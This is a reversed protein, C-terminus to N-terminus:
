DFGLGQERLSVYRQHGIILHDLVEIDLLGGAQVAQRTVDIDDSSPSPDGSPHNHALIIAASNRAIAERFLEGARVMSANLNGIYVTHVHEVRNRTDLLLVRLHEQHLYSMDGMLLRAADAAERIQPRDEPSLSSLRRGLEFAAKLQVAKAQGMGHTRALEAVGVRALGDLGGFSVLLREAMRIVNEGGTGVRLTIALLEADSLAGPGLRALRERPREGSPLDKITPASDDLRM